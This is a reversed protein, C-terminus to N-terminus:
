NILKKYFDFKQLHINDPLYYKKSYYHIGAIYPKLYTPNALLIEQQIQGIEKRLDENIPPSLISLKIGKSECLQIIKSLYIKSITSIGITTKETPYDPSWLSVKIPHYNALYFFPIQKIQNVTYSDLYKKNEETYFPKIFYNYTFNQNLNNRFSLPHMILIVEDINNGNSIYNNLLIFQGAMSIAQNTCLSIYKSSDIEEDLIQKGVSDGIVLKKQKHKSLSQTIAEYIETGAVNKKYYETYFSIEPYIHFLVLFLSVFTAIDRLFKKM